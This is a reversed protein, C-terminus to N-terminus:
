TRDTSTGGKMFGGWFRAKSPQRSSSKPQTIEMEKLKDLLQLIEKEKEQIIRDKTAVEERLLTLGRDNSAITAKLNDIEEARTKAVQPDVAHESRAKQLQQKLDELETRLISNEEELQLMQNSTDELEEQSPGALHRVTEELGGLKDAIGEMMSWLEDPLRGAAQDTEGPYRLKDVEEVPILWINRIKDAKLKGNQIYRRITKTSVDLLDAAQKIDLQGPFPEDMNLEMDPAPGPSTQM